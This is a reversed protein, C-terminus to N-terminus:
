TCWKRHQYSNMSYHTWQKCAIGVQFQALMALLMLQTDLMDQLIRNVSWHIAQMSAMNLLFTKQRQTKLKCLKGWLCMRQLAQRM